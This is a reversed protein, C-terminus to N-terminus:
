EEKELTIVDLSCVAVCAPERGKKLRNICGDCKQAKQNEGVFIVQQPCVKECVGCGTCKQQDVLFFGYEPERYIASQPCRGACIGCNTCGPCIKYAFGQRSDIIKRISRFSRVNKEEADHHSDLCAIHCAYCGVCRVADFKLHYSM